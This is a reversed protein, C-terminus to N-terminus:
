EKPALHTVSIQLTKNGPWNCEAYRAPSGGLSIRTTQNIYRNRYVNGIFTYPFSSGGGAGSGRHAVPGPSCKKRSGPSGFVFKLMFM